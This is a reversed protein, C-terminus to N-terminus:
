QAMEATITFVEARLAEIRTVPATFGPNRLQDSTSLAGILRSAAASRGSVTIKQQQQRFETLYTDGPLLRTLAALAVLPRGAKNRETDILEASGSIREIERRLKEAEAATARGNAIEQDISALAAAQRVFPVVVAAVALAGCLAAAPWYFFPRGNIGVTQGGSSHLVFFAGRDPGTGIEARNPIVDNNKLTDLINSLRARPVLLLRVSLQARQRDRRVIHYTWLIEATGFPTERDIEFALVQGLDREAALPLTVTKSLVDAETLRLVAQKGAARPLGRLHGSQLSYRGLPNERGRRRLSVSIAQPTGIPGVPEIVLADDKPSGLWRLAEPVCDALQQGWWTFFERVM